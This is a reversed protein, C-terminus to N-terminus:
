DHGLPVHARTKEPVGTLDSERDPNAGCPSSRPHGKPMPLSGAGEFGHRAYFSVNAPDSNELYAPVGKLDCAVLVSALLDSAIGRRHQGPVVGVADLYYHPESPRAAALVALAEGRRGSSWQSTGTAVDLGAHDKTVPPFWIAAGAGRESRYVLGERVGLGVLATFLGTLRTESLDEAFM